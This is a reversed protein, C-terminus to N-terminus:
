KLVWKFSRPSADGALRIQLEISGPQPVIAKFRLLGKRHHGGPAAGQWGLPSYQKGEAVLSASRSLDDGLNQTHTELTVEFNWTAQALAQPTVTVKVGREDSTQPALGVEAANSTSIAGAAMAALALGSLYRKLM